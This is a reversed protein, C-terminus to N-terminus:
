QHNAEKFVIAGFEAPNEVPMYKVHSGRSIPITGSIVIINPNNTHEATIDVDSNSNGTVISGLITIYATNPEIEIKAPAGPKNGPSITFAICNNNFSFADKPVSYCRDMDDWRWGKGFPSDNFYSNDVIVDGTIQTIGKKILTEAWEEFVETPNSNNFYGSITPDGSAVIILDGKLIGSAITGNTVVKTEYTFDPSLSLLAAASTFLKLNSAPTFRQKSNYKFLPEATRVSEIAIGVHASEFAKDKVIQSLNKRLMTLKTPENAKLQCPSVCLFSISLAIVLIMEM